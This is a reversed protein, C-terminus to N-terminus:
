DMVGTHQLKRLFGLPLTHAAKLHPAPISDTGSPLAWVGRPCFHRQKLGRGRHRKMQSQIWVRIVDKAIFQCDLLYVPKRLWTVQACLWVWLPTMPVELECATPWLAPLFWSQSQCRFHPCGQPISGEASPGSARELSNTDSSLQKTTHFFVGGCMIIPHLVWFLPATKLCFTNDPNPTSPARWVAPHPTAGSSIPWGERPSGELKQTDSDGPYGVQDCSCGHSWGFIWETYPVM